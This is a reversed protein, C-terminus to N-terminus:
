TLNSPPELRLDELSLKSGATPCARPHHDLVSESPFSANSVGVAVAEQGVYFHVFGMLNDRLYPNAIEEEAVRLLVMRKFAKLQAIM